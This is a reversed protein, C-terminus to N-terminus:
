TICSEIADIGYDLVVNADDGLSGGIAIVPVDYHKALKAIGIAVKGYMTQGDIRGEGTIVLDAKKIQKEIGSAKIVIDIGRELEAGAIAVLGAGLGGAAGGGELTLVDIGLSQEILRGFTKLNEDLLNCMEPTAGKQPGFIHSAGQKGCLFNTVDCAISITVKSILPSIDSCDIKAVDGLKGGSLPTKFVRGNQNFFNVGLAQAMGAGADNTASGGIGLIIKKVGKNAAALILEGTGYSTTKLPNRSHKDLLTLGSAQAMEIIATKGDGTIGYKARVPKKDPGMVKKYHYKGKTAAVLVELIGEGGDAMPFNVCKAKPFVRRIGSAMAEAAQRSTMSGKFSDPALIILM